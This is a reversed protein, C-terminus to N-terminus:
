GRRAAPCRGCSRRSFLRAGVWTRPPLGWVAAVLPAAGASQRAAQRSACSLASSSRRLGARGGLATGEPSGGPERGEVRAEEVPAAGPAVGGAGVVVQALLPPAPRHSRPARGGRSVGPPSGRGRQPRGLSSGGAAVGASGVRSRLTRQRLSRVVPPLHDPLTAEHSWRVGKGVRAVGISEWHAFRPCHRQWSSCTLISFLFWSPRRAASEAAGRANKGRIEGCSIDRVSRPNVEWPCSTPRM